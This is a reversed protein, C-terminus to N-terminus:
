FFHGNKDARQNANSTTKRTRQPWKFPTAGNTQIPHWPHWLVGRSGDGFRIKMLPQRGAVFLARHISGSFEVGQM